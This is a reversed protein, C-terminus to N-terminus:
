VDPQNALVVLIGAIGSRVQQDKGIPHTAGRTAIDRGGHGDGVQNRQIDIRMRGIRQKGQQAGSEHVRVLFQGITRLAVRLERTQAGGADGEHTRPILERHNVDPIRAGVNQPSVGEGLHRRIVGEHLVQHIRPLNGGVLRFVMRLAVDNQPDQTIRLRIHRRILCHTLGHDTVPPQQTGVAQGAHHGRFGDRM